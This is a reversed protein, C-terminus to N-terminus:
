KEESRVKSVIQTTRAGGLDIILKSVDDVSAEVCKIYERVASGALSGMENLPIKGDEIARKLMRTGKWTCFMIEMISAFDRLMEDDDIADCIANMIKSTADKSPLGHPEFLKTKDIGDNAIKEDVFENFSQM